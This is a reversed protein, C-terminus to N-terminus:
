AVLSRASEGVFQRLKVLARAELQRARERSVHLSRAIAALTREEGPEAMWRQQVILREREDLRALAGQVLERRQQQLQLAALASEQDDSAPLTDLLRGGAAKADGDLSVDRSDLRGLLTQLRQDSVGLRAALERDAEAGAGLMGYLRARERRLRFFVQSRLAGGLGSTATRSRVVYALMLARVWYAAYTTFRVGREPEFKHLAQMVGLNGEAVLESMPIEYGRYKMAMSVVHRQHAAALANAAGRDGQERFRRFLELEQERTLDPPQGASTTSLTESRHSNSLKSM